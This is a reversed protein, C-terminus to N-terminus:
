NYSAMVAIALAIDAVAKWDIEIEWVDFLNLKM